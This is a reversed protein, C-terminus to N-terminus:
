WDYESPEGKSMTVAEVKPFVFPMLKILVEIKKEPTLSTLYDPLHEMEKAIISKLNVRMDIVKTSQEKSDTKM